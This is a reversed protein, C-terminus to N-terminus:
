GLCRHMEVREQGVFRERAPKLRPEAVRMQLNERDDAERSRSERPDEVLEIPECKRIAPGSPRDAEVLGLRRPQEDLDAPLPEGLAFRDDRNELLHHGVFRGREEVAVGM